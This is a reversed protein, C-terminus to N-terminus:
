KVRDLLTRQEDYQYEINRQQMIEKELVPGYDISDDETSVNLLVLPEEPGDYGEVALEIDFDTDNDSPHPIVSSHDELTPGSRPAPASKDEGACATLFLLLIYFKFFKITM